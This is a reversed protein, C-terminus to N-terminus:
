CKWMHRTVPQLWQIKLLYIGTSCLDAILKMIHVDWHANIEIGHYLGLIGHADYIYWPVTM